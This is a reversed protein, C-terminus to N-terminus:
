CFLLTEPSSLLILFFLPYSQRAEFSLHLKVSCAASALSHESTKRRKGSVNNVTAQNGKPLARQLLLREWGKQPNSRYWMATKKGPRKVSMIEQLQEGRPFTLEPFLLHKSFIWLRPFCFWPSPRRTRSRPDTRLAADNETDGLAPCPSPFSHSLFDVLNSLLSTQLDQLLLKCLLWLVQALRAAMGGPPCPPWPCHQGSVQIEQDRGKSSGGEQGWAVASLTNMRSLTEKVAKKEEKHFLNHSPMLAQTSFSLSTRAQKEQWVGWSLTKRSTWNSPLFLHSGRRM